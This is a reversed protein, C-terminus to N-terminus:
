VEYWQTEFSIKKTKEWFFPFNYEGNKRSLIKKKKYSFFHLIKNNSLDPDYLISSRPLFSLNWVKLSSIFFHLDEYAMTMLNTCFNTQNISIWIIICTLSMTFKIFNILSSLMQNLKHFQFLDIFLIFNSIYIRSLTHLTGKILFLLWYNHLLFLKYFFNYLTQIYKLFPSYYIIPECPWIFLQPCWFWWWKGVVCLFGSSSAGMLGWGKIYEYERCDGGM